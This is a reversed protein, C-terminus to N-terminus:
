HWNKYRDGTLGWGKTCIQRVLMRWHHWLEKIRDLFALIGRALCSELLVELEALSTMLSLSM